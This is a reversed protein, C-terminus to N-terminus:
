RRNKSNRNGGLTYGLARWAGCSPRPPCRRLAVAPSSTGGDERIPSKASFATCRPRGTSPHPAGERIRGRTPPLSVADGRLRPLRWPPARRTYHTESGRFMRVRRTPAGHSMGTEEGRLVPHAGGYFYHHTGHPPLLLAGSATAGGRTPFEPISGRVRSPRIGCPIQRRSSAPRGCSCPPTPM